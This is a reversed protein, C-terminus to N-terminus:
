PPHIADALAAPVGPCRPARAWSVNKPFLFGDIETEKEMIIRSNTPVVPYLSYPFPLRPEAQLNPSPADWAGRAKWRERGVHGKDRAELRPCDGSEMGAQSYGGYLGQARPVM